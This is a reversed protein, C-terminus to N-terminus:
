QVAQRLKELLRGSNAENELNLIMDCIENAEDTRMVMSLIGKVKELVMEQEPRHEARDAHPDLVLHRYQKGNVEAELSCPWKGQQFHRDLEDDTRVDVREALRRVADPMRRYHLFEGIGFNGQLLTAATVFPYSLQAALTDNPPFPVRSAIHYHARPVRVTIRRIDGPDRSAALLQRRVEKAAAIAPILTHSVPYEKFRCDLITNFHSMRSLLDLDREDSFALFFGGPESMVTPYEFFGSEALDAAEFGSRAGYGSHFWIAQVPVGTEAELMGNTGRLGVGLHAALALAKKTLERSYGRVRAVIGASGFVGCLPTPRFGRQQGKMGGNVIRAPNEILDYGAVTLVILEKGSLAAHDRLLSFITPFVVTGSHSVSHLSTDSMNYAFCAVGGFWAMERAPLFWLDPTEREGGCTRQLYRRAARAAESRCGVAMLAFNDLMCLKAKQVAEGPIDEFKLDHLYEAFSDIM